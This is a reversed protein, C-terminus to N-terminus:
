LISVNQKKKETPLQSFNQKFIKSANDSMKLYNPRKGKEIDIQVIQDEVADFKILTDAHRLSFNELLVKETLLEEGLLNFISPTTKKYFCPLELGDVSERYEENITNLKDTNMNELATNLESLVHKNDEFISTFEDYKNSSGLM